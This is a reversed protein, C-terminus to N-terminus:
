VRELIKARSLIGDAIAEGTKVPMGIRKMGALTTDLAPDVAATIEAFLDDIDQKAMGAKEATQRFHRPLIEALRYHRNNGVAMAMKVRQPPLEPYPAISMVDYIPVLEFGGPTLFISFNKAHGDIAALLWFLVQAQLFRKRDRRPDASQGLFEMISRIGPGGDSEYKRAPPIGMAQCMDEQPLRFLVGNEWRRDFREVVLVPARGFHLVQSKATPLGMAACFELCFWENWPSDSFDAGELGQRIVPKFIHSTPTSGLPLHWGGDTWLFATKEQVGALSIRFDVGDEAAMRGLPTRALTKLRETIEEDELPRYHMETPDGPDEGEPLFRLAGVCDRGIAALLDFTGDSEAEERAAIVERVTRDDPLLGDFVPTVTEGSWIRDSLPLSLSIAFGRESSLWADAYRFTTAGDPERAYRGVLSQGIYVDLARSRRRRGM